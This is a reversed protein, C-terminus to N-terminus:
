RKVEILMQMYALDMNINYKMKEKLAMVIELIKIEEELSLYPPYDKLFQNFTLNDDKNLLFKIKDNQITILLDIFYNHYTKNEQKIVKGKENLLIISDLNNNEFSLSLEKTFTIIKLLVEDNALAYAEDYNTTFNSVVRSIEDNINNSVLQQYIIDKNIPLFNVMLSRSKITPLVLNINETLLIGYCNENVEEFFKLLSNASAQTAKDIDEIIFVRSSSSTLSFERELALIQEKKISDGDPTVVFVHPNNNTIIKQCEVCELCATKKECLILCALYIAAEKKYTGRGGHFLYTHVLRNKKFSNDLLKIVQKQYIKLNDFNMM